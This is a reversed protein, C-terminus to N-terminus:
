PLRRCLASSMVPGNLSKWISKSRQRMLSAFCLSRFGALLSNLFSFFLFFFSFVLFFWCLCCSVNEIGSSLLLEITYDILPANVLPMLVRPIDITVPAFRKNFSDALVVATNVYKRKLMVVSM